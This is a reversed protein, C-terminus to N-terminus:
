LILVILLSDHLACHCASCRGYIYFVSSAAVAEVNQMSDVLSIGTWVSGM